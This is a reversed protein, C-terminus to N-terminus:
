KITIKIAIIIMLIVIIIFAKKGNMIFKRRYLIGKDLFFSDSLFILPGYIYFYRKDKINSIMPFFVFVVRGFYYIVFLICVLGFIAVIINVYALLM